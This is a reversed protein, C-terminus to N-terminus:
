QARYAAPSTGVHRRFVRAFAPVSDYGVATAVEAVSRATRRLLRTAVGIRWRTVYAMPAEGVVAAFRAAFRSRSVGAVRALAEVTWAAGPERHVRELARSLRPDNLAGFWGAAHDPTHALHRRLLSACLTELARDVIFTSGNGGARLERQLTRAV